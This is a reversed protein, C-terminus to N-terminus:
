KPPDTKFGIQKEAKSAFAKEWHKKTSRHEVSLLIVLQETKSELHDIESTTLFIGRQGILKGEGSM